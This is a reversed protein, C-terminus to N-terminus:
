TAEVSILERIVSYHDQPPRPKGDKNKSVTRTSFRFMKSKFVSTSIRDRRRPLHGVAVYYAAMLKSGLGFAKNEEPCPCVLYLEMKLYPGPTSIQFWLFLRERREFRGREVRRFVGVYECEPVLPPIPQTYGLTEDEDDAKPKGPPKAAM